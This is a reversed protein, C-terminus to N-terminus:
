KKIKVKFAQFSEVDNPSVLVGAFTLAGLFANVTTLFNDMTDTPIEYGFLVAVAQIFLILASTLGSWFVSTKIRSKM